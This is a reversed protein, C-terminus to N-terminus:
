NAHKWRLKFILLDDEEKFAFVRKREDVDYSYWDRFEKGISLSCWADIDAASNVM